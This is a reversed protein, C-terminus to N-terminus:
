DVTVTSSRSRYNHRNPYNRGSFGNWPGNNSDWNWPLTEWNNSNNWPQSRNDWGQWPMSQGSWPMSGSGFNGSWPSNNGGYRGNNDLGNNYPGYGYGRQPYYGQPPGYPMQARQQPPMQPAAQQVPAPMSSAGAEQAQLQSASFGMMLAGCLAIYLHKTIRIQM